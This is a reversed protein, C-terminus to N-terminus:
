HLFLIQFFGEVRSPFASSLPTAGIAHVQLGQLEHVRRLLKGSFVRSLGASAVHRGAPPCCPYSCRSSPGGVGRAPPLPAWLPLLFSSWASPRGRCLATEAM